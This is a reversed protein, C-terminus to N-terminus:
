AAGDCAGLTTVRYVPVDEIVISSVPKEEQVTTFGAPPLARVRREYGVVPSPSMEM